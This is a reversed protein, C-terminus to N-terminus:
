DQKYYIVCVGQGGNAGVMGTQSAGGAHGGGGGGQAGSTPTQASGGSAATSGGNGGNGYSGGGGSGVLGGPTSYDSGRTGRYGALTESNPFRKGGGIARITGFSGSITTDGGPDGIANPTGASSVGGNGGGGISVSLSEGVNVGTFVTVFEAGQGGQAEDVQGAAGGEGGGVMEVAILDVGSPVTFSGSSNFLQSKWKGPIFINSGAM